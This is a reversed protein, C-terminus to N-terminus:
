NAIIGPLMRRLVGDRAIFHHYLAAIVHLGVLTLLVYEALFSHVDGTWAWGSTRNPMIKPMTFLGFFSVPMGRWSANIWGLIPLVFLLLYLLWHVIRALMTQWQPVGNEPEPTGDSIRWALRLVAVLLILVGFSFHLSILTTVPTDRRIDPMTWALVFQVILLAVIIWHLAKATSTYAQSAMKKQM